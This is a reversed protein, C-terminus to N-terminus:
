MSHLYFRLFDVMHQTLGHDQGLKHQVINFAPDVPVSTNLTRIDYSTIYVM